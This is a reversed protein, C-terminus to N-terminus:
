GATNHKSIVYYWYTEGLVVTNDNFSKFAAGVSGISVYEGTETDSRFIEYGKPELGSPPAEWSINIVGGYTGDSAQVNVPPNPPLVGTVNITKFNTGEMGENDVAHVRSVFAGPVPFTHEITAQD